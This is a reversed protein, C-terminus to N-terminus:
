PPASGMALLLDVVAQEFFDPHSERLRHLLEGGVEAEIRSIGDEIQEIPDLTGADAPLLEAQVAESDASKRTENPWFPAFIERAHAYDFGRGRDNIVYHGRSPRDIWSAKAL